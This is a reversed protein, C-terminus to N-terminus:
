LERRKREFEDLSIAEHLYAELLRDQHREVARLADTLTAQRAQLEQPLRASAHARELAAALQAPDRLVQCLDEWVVVDLQQAPIYIYRSTCPRGASRLRKDLRGRCVYYRCGGPTTRAGATLHCLECSM